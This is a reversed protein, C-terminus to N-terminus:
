LSPRNVCSKVAALPPPENLKLFTVLAKKIKEKVAVASDHTRDPIARLLRAYALATYIPHLKSATDLAADREKADVFLDAFCAEYIRRYEKDSLSQQYRFPTRKFYDLLSFIPLDIVTEGLDIISIAKSETNLVLNNDHFDSHGLCAPLNCKSLNDCLATVITSTALLEKIQSESLGVDRLLPVDTIIDIYAQPIKNPRHDPVGLKIFREVHFATERQLNKYANIGELIEDMNRHAEFFRQVTIDGCSRMLFCSLNQNASILEPTYAEGYLQQCLKIVDSEIFLDKPTKKLYFDGQSSTIKLVTSWPTEVVTQVDRDPNFSVISAAWKLIDKEM